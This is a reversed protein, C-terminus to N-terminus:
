PAAPCSPRRRWASRIDASPWMRRHQGTAAQDLVAEEFRRGIGTREAAGAVVPHLGPGVADLLCGVGMLRPRIRAAPVRRLSDPKILRAQTVRDTACAKKKAPPGSSACAALQDGSVPDGGSRASAARLEAVPREATPIQGGIRCSGDAIAPGAREGAILRAPDHGADPDSRRRLHPEPPQTRVASAGYGPPIAHADVLIQWRTRAAAARHRHPQGRGGDASWRSTAAVRGGLGAGSSMDGDSAPGSNASATAMPLPVFWRFSQNDRTRQLASTDPPGGAFAAAWAPGAVSAGDERASRAPAFARQALPRHRQVRPPPM